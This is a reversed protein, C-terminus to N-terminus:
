QLAALLQDWSEKIRIDIFKGGTAKALKRMRSDGGAPPQMPFYVTVVPIRAEGAQKLLEDFDAESANDLGNSFLLVLGPKESGLAQLVADYVPSPGNFDLAGFTEKLLEADDTYPQLVIPKRLFRGADLQQFKREFGVVTLEAAEPKSALLRHLLSVMAPGYPRLAGSNQVVLAVRSFKWSPLNGQTLGVALLAMGILYPLPM